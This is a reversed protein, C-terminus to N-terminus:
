TLNQLIAMKKQLHISLCQLPYIKEQLLLQFIHHIRVKKEIDVLRNYLDESLNLVLKWSEDTILKYAADGKEM